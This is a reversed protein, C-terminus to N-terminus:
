FCSSQERSAKGPLPFGKCKRWLLANILAFYIGTRHGVLGGRAIDEILIPHIRWFVRNVINTAAKNMTGFQFCNIIYMLLVIPLSIM